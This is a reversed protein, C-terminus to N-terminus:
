IEVEVVYIEYFDVFCECRLIECIFFFEVEVMVFGVDVIIGDGEFM